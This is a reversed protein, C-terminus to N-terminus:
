IKKIYYMERFLNQTGLTENRVALKIRLNAVSSSTLRAGEALREITSGDGLLRAISFKVSTGSLWARFTFYDAGVYEGSADSPFEGILIYTGSGGDVQYRLSSQNNIFGSAWEFTCGIEVVDTNVIQDPGPLSSNLFEFITTEGSADQPVSITTPTTDKAFVLEGGPALDAVESGGLYQANLGSVLQGDGNAGIILPPTSPSTPNVAVQGTVDLESSPSSNSIGVNGNTRVYVSPTAGGDASISLNRNSGTGGKESQIVYRGAVSDYKIVLQEYNEGKEKIMYLTDKDMFVEGIPKEHTGLNLPLKPALVIRNKEEVVDFHKALNYINKLTKLM